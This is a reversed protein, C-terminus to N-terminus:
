EHKNDIYKEQWFTRHSKLEDLQKLIMSAWEAWMKVDPHEPNKNAEEVFLKNEAHITELEAIHINYKEVIKKAVAVSIDEM